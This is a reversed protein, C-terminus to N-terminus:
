GVSSHIYVTHKKKHRNLFDETNKDEPLGRLASQFLSHTGDIGM